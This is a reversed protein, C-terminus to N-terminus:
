ATQFTDPNDPVVGGESGPLHKRIAGRVWRMLRDRDKVTLGETPIPDSVTMRIKGPRIRWDGAKPLVKHSGSISVPVIPQQSKIALIFGGAKFEQLMGDMSRTGEPFIFISAGRRAREAAQNISEFAKHRDRRDIPIAGCAEMALGLVPVRFLEEKALWRFPHPIVALLAFIDFWSQHNAAFIYPQGREIRDLGEVQARTGALWLSVRAWLRAVGHAREAKGTLRYVSYACVGCYITIIFLFLYFFVSRAARM